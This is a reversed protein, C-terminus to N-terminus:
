QKWSRLYIYSSHDLGDLKRHCIHLDYNNTLDIAFRFACKSWATNFDPLPIAIYEVGNIERYSIYKNSVSGEYIATESQESYAKQVPTSEIQLKLIYDKLRDIEKLAEDRTM